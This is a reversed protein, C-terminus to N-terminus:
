IVGRTFNGGRSRNRLVKSVEDSVAKAIDKANGGGSVSININNTQGGGGMDGKISVPITRGDPLPVVAETGHLMVPYGSKPGSAVGGDNFGLYDAAGGLLEGGLSFAKGAKDLVWTIAEIIPEIEEMIGNMGKEFYPLLWTILKMVGDMIVGLVGTIIRVLPNLFSFFASVFSVLPPGLKAWIKIFLSIIQAALLAIFGAVFSIYEIFKVVFEILGSSFLFNVIGKILRKIGGILVDMTLGTDDIAAKITGFAMGVLGFFTGFADAIRQFMGAEDMRAVIDGIGTFVAAVFTLYLTLINGLMVFVGELLPILVGAAVTFDIGGIAEVIAQIAGLFSDIVAKGAEMVMNFAGASAEGGGFSKTLLFVAAGVLAFAGLVFIMITNIQQFVKLMGSIPKLAKDFTKGLKKTKKITGDFVEGTTEVANKLDIYTTFFPGLIKNLLRYQLNLINISKSQDKALTNLRAQSTIFKDLDAM